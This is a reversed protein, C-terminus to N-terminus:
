QPDMSSTAGDHPVIASISGYSFDYAFPSAITFGDQDFVNVEKGATEKGYRNAVVLAIDNERARLQLVGQDIGVNAPALLIDAGALAALRAYHPYLLDACVVIALKGYETQFVPIPGSVIGNYAAELLSSRKRYTGRVKGDPDLLAVSNFYQLTAPDFEPMGIAIYVGYQKSLKGFANTTAGPIPEAVKELDHRSFFAYGSTAMETNVIIKAGSKAAAEDLALLRQVNSPVDGLIPDFHVAAVRVSAGFSITSAAVTLLLALITRM